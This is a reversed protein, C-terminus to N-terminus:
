NILRVIDIADFYYKGMKSYSCIKGPYYDKGTDIFMYDGDKLSPIHLHSFVILNDKYKSKLTEFLSMDFIDYQWIDFIFFINWFGTIRKKRKNWDDICKQPNDSHIFEMRVPPLFDSLPKLMFVPYNKGESPAVTILDGNLYEKFYISMIMYDNENIHSWIFPSLYPLNLERYFYAGCCDNSVFIPTHNKNRLRLCFLYTRRLVKKLIDYLKNMKDSCYNVYRKENIFVM